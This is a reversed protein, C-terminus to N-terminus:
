EESPLIFDERFLVHYEIKNSTFSLYRRDDFTNQLFGTISSVDEGYLIAMAKGFYRSFEKANAEQYEYNTDDPSFAQYTTLIDRASFKGDENLPDPIIACIVPNFPNTIVELNNTIFEEDLSPFVRITDQYIKEYDVISPYVNGYKNNPRYTINNWIPIIFFQATVYLDPFKSEWVSEQAIGLSYLYDRIYARAELSTPVAGQYMLGFRVEPINQSSIVWRTRYALNGTHDIGTTSADINNFIYESSNVIATVATAQTTPALLTGPDCPPIVATVTTLPYGRKFADSNLWLKFKVESGNILMNFEIWDYIKLESRMGTPTIMTYNVSRRVTNEVYYDHYISDNTILENNLETETRFQTIFIKEVLNFFNKVEEDDVNIFAGRTDDMKSVDFYVALKGDPVEGIIDSRSERIDNVKGIQHFYNILIDDLYGLGIDVSKELDVTKKKWFMSDEIFGYVVQSEAM